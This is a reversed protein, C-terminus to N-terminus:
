PYSPYHRISFGEYEGHGLYPVSISIKVSKARLMSQITKQWLAAFFRPAGGTNQPAIPASNPGRAIGNTSREPRRVYGFAALSFLLEIEESDNLDM